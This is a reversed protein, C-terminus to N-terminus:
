HSAMVGGHSGACIVEVPTHQGSPCCGPPVLLASHTRGGAGVGLHGAGWIRFRVVPSHTLGDPAGGGGGGVQGAPLKWLGFVLAHACVGGGGGGVQGGPVACLRRVLAHPVGGGGGGAHAAPLKWLGFVLAHTGVEVAGDGVHGGPVVCLRRVLPHAFGTGVQGCPWRCLGCVLPHTVIV